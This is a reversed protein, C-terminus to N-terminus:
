VCDQNATVGQKCNFLLLRYFPTSVIKIIYRNCEQWMYTYNQIFMNTLERGNRSYVIYAQGTLHTMSNTFVKHLFCSWLQQLPSFPRASHNSSIKATVLTSRDM